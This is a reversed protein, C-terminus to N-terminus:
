KLKYPLNAREQLKLDQIMRLCMAAIQILEHKIAAPDQNKRRIEEWLEDFEEKIIGAGDHYTLIPTKHLRRARKLEEIIEQLTYVMETTIFTYRPCEWTDVKALPIRTGEPIEYYLEEVLNLITSVERRKDELWQDFPKPLSLLLRNSGICSPSSHHFLATTLQKLCAKLQEIRSDKAM